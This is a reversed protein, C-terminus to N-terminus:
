RRLSVLSVAGVLAAAGPGLLVATALTASSSPSWRTQRSTLPAQTSDCVLFLAALVALAVWADSARMPPHRPAHGLVLTLLTVTIAAAVVFGIYVRAAATIRAERETGAPPKGVGVQGSTM